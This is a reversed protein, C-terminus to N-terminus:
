DDMEFQTEERVVNLDYPDTAQRQIQLAPPRPVPHIGEEREKQYVERWLSKNNLKKRLTRYTIPFAIDNCLLDFHNANKIVNEMAEFTFRPDDVNIVGYLKRLENKDHNRKAERIIQRVNTYSQELSSASGFYIASGATWTTLFSRAFLNDWMWANCVSAGAVSTASCWKVYRMFHVADNYHRECDAHAPISLMLLLILLKM